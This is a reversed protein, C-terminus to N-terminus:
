KWADHIRRYTEALSEAVVRVDSFVPMFNTDGNWRPVIHVHLHEELGAGAVKGLNIGINFGQPNMAKKLAAIGRGVHMHIDLIEEPSLGAFDASHRYPAVMLHGPNYPFANCIVFCHKGRAVIQHEEDRDEKPYNCLFCGDDNRDSMRIYTMRWPAFIHEV